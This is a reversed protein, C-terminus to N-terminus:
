DLPLAGRQHRAAAGAPRRPGGARGVYEEAGIASPNVQRAPRSTAPLPAPETEFHHSTKTDGRPAFVALGAAIAFLYILVKFGDRKM